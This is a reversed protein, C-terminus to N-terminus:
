WRCSFHMDGMVRATTADVLAFTACDAMAMGNSNPMPGSSRRAAPIAEHTVVYYVTLDKVGLGSGPERDTALMLAVTTARAHDLRGHAARRVSKEAQAPSVEAALDEPAFLSVGWFDVVPRTVPPDDPAVNRSASWANLAPGAFVVAVALAAAVLAPLSRAQPRIAESLLAMAAGEM